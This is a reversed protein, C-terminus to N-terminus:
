WPDGLGDLLRELRARTGVDLPAGERGLVRCIEVAALARPRANRLREAEALARRYLRDAAEPEGATGHAAAVAALLGPRDIVIAGDISAEAERLLARARRADGARGHGRALDALLAAKVPLTGPLSRAIEGAERLTERAEGRRGARLLGEAVRRLAESRKWGPLGRASRRAADLARDRLAADNGARRAAELYGETRWWSVEMDRDTDLPALARLAAHSDGRTSLASAAVFAARGAYERDESALGSALARAREGDGLAAYAGAVHAAIRAGQWGTTAARVEEARAILDRAADGRGDAALAAAVDALATGRRWGEIGEATQLARDFAGLAAYDRAVDEQARARDKEDSAIASAFRFALALAEGGPLPASAPAATPAAQAAAALVLALAAAPVRSAASTAPGGAARM